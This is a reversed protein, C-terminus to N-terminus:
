QDQERKIDAGIASLKEDLREYGRDLHYIRHINTTGNTAMAALVLSASARLDTAMVDAGKLCGPNGKIIALTGDLKIDAGMRKLELAHQFRNEFILERVHSVGTAVTMLSMFQAQLDTPFGPYPATEIDVANLKKSKGIKVSNETITMKVGADKLKELFFELHSPNCNCVELNRGSIAGAIIYTGAAIRDPIVTHTCYKLKKVGKVEIRKTGEGTIDAGMKILCDCLDTIEPETAANDIITVGKALVAAMLVNETGTVTVKDFSVNGGKLIGDTKLHSFGSDIHHLAGMKKFAEIHLDIPRAGIACGGPTYVHSEGFRGLIPGMLLVSARMKRVIDYPIAGPNIKEPTLKLTGNSFESKMGILNLAKVMTKIDEVEPVNKLELGEDSLISAAILPLAANKAGSVYVKGNIERGGNIILKELM